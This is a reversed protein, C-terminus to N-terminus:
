KLTERLIDVVRRGDDRIIAGKLSEVDWDSLVSLDFSNHSHPAFVCSSAEDDGDKARSELERILRETDIEEFVDELDVTVSLPISTM